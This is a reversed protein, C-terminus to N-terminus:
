PKTSAGGSEIHPAVVFFKEGFLLVAKDMVQEITSVTAPDPLGAIEDYPRQYVDSLFSATSEPSVSEHFIFLLHVGPYAKLEFGMLVRVSRLAAVDTDLKQLLTNNPDRDRVAEALRVTEDYIGRWKRFGEVSNHDTFAISRIPRSARQPQAKRVATDPDEFENARKIIALYEADDAPGQYDKSAPTHVHLDIGAWEYKIAPSAAKSM